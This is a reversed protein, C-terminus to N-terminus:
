IFNEESINLCANMYENTHKCVILYYSEEPIRFCYLISIHQGQTGSRELVNLMFPHQIKDFLTEADLLIIM